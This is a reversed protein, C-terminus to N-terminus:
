ITSLANRQRGCSLNFYLDHLSQIAKQKAKNESGKM